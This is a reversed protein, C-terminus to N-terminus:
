ILDIISGLIILMNQVQPGIGKSCMDKKHGMKSSCRVVYWEFVYFYSVDRVALGAECCLLLIPFPM